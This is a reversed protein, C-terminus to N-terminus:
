FRFLHQSDNQEFLRRVAMRRQADKHKPRELELQLM